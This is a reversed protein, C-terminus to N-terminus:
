KELDHGWYPIYPNGAGNQPLNSSKYEPNTDILLVKLYKEIAQIFHYYSQMHLDHKWLVAAALLDNDADTILTLKNSPRNQM